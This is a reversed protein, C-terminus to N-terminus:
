SVYSSAPRFLLPESPLLEYSAHFIDRFCNAIISIPKGCQLARPPVTDRIIVGMCDFLFLKM